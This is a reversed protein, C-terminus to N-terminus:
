GELLLRQRFAKPTLGTWKRFSNNFASASSFGLRFGAETLSVSDDALLQQAYDVRVQQLLEQFSVGEQNLRRKLTSASFGLASAAQERSLAKDGQEDQLQARLWGQLQAALSDTMIQQRQRELHALLVPQIGPNATTVPEALINKHYILQNHKQGFLPMQGFVDVYYQCQDQYDENFLAPGDHCFHVAKLELKDLIPRNLLYTAIHLTSALDREVLPAALKHDELEPFSVRHQVWDGDELIQTKIAGNILDEHDITMSLAEAITCASLMIHAIDGWQNLHMRRGVALGLQPSSTNVILDNLASALVTVPYRNNIAAHSLRAEWLVQQEADLQAEDLFHQWYEHSICAEPM